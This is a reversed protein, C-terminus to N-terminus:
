LSPRPSHSNYSLYNQPDLRRKPKGPYEEILDALKKCQWVKTENMKIKAEKIWKWERMLEPQSHGLRVPVDATALPRLFEIDRENLDLQRRDGQYLLRALCGSDELALASPTPRPFQSDTGVLVRYTKCRWFRLMDRFIIFYDIISPVESSNFFQDGYHFFPGYFPHALVCSDLFKNKCFLIELILGM